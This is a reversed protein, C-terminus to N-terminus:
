NGNSRLSAQFGKNKGHVSVFSLVMRLGSAVGESTNKRYHLGLQRSERIISALVGSKNATILTISVSGSM